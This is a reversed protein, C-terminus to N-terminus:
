YGMLIAYKIVKDLDEESWEFDLWEKNFIYNIEQMTIVIFKYDKKIESVSSLNGNAMKLYAQNEFFIYTAILPKNNLNFNKLITIIKFNESYFPNNFISILDFEREIVFLKLDTFFDEFDEYKSNIFFRFCGIDKRKLQGLLIEKKNKIININFGYKNDKGASISEIIVKINKSKIINRLICPLKELLKKHFANEIMEATVSRSEGKQYSANKYYINIDM